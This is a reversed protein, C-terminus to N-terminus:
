FLEGSVGIRFSGDRAIAELCRSITEKELFEVVEHQQNLKLFNM